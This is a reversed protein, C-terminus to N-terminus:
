SPESRGTSCPMSKGPMTSCSPHTSSASTLLGTGMMSMEITGGQLSSAVAAEGGLVGGPYLKVKLKGGSKQSALEAFRKAGLDHASDAPNVFALKITRSKIEQASAVSVSLVSCGVLAAVLGSKFLSKM